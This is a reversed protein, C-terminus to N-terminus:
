DSEDREALYGLVDDETAILRQVEEGGDCRQLSVVVRGPARHVVVWHGGADEWRRLVDLQSEPSGGETIRTV